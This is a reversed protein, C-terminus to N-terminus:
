LEEGQKHRDQLKAEDANLILHHFFNIAQEYNKKSIRENIGHFRATDEPYMFSPSFRYVNNTFHLYHRTDTNGIMVGTCFPLNYIAHMCSLHLYM